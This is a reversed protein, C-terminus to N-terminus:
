NVGVQVAAEIRGLAKIADAAAAKRKENLQPDPPEKEQPPEAPAREATVPGPTRAQEPEGKKLSALPHARVAVAVKKTDTRRECRDSDGAL